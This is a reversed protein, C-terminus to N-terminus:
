KRPQLLAPQLVSGVDELAVAWSIWARPIPVAAPDQVSQGGCFRRLCITQELIVYLNFPIFHRRLPPHGLRSLCWHARLPREVGHRALDRPSQVQGLRLRRHRSSCRRVSTGTWKLWRPQFFCSPTPLHFKVPTLGCSLLGRSPSCTLFTERASLEHKERAPARPSQFAPHDALLERPRIAM